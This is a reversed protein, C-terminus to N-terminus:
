NVKFEFKVMCCSEQTRETHKFIELLCVSMCAVRM